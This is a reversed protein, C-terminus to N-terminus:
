LNEIQLHIAGVIVETTVVDQRHVKKVELPITIPIGEQLLAGSGKRVIEQNTMGQIEEQLQGRSGKRGIEQDITGQIEEQLQDRFGKRGIKQNTMGQIEEQLQDRFGRRGIKQNTMGQIEEQLQGRSGKRGIEQDITGQIEEQLQGRSGKRVIEQDEQLNEQNLLKVIAEEIRMEKTKGEELVNKVKIKLPKIAMKWVQKEPRCRKRM